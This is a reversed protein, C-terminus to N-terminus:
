LDIVLRDGICRSVCVMMTENSAKESDNLVVDRHDVDGEIIETECTGCVGEHCSGLVPIGVGEVARFISEDASVQITLGSRALVLEFATDVRGEEVAKAHFRELHLTGDPWTACAQEVAALLAEPGCCYVLTGTTPTGLLDDMRQSLSRDVEDRPLLTVRDGYQELIPVFAMSARSRGGYVLQWDAGTAVAEEIMPLMPTVGIGGAIFLYRPSSVLPFHNRPGRTLVTSGVVLNDHIFTSGGRSDEARLVGVQLRHSDTPSSCLSYQRVLDPTLVLDVHAGPTWPPLADGDPHSLTLVVVGDAAQEVSEVVLDAEYERLRTPTETM